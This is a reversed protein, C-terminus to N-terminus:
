RTRISRTSYIQSCCELQNKNEEKVAEARCEIRSVVEHIWFLGAVGQNVTAKEVLGVRKAASVAVFAEGKTEINWMVDDQSLGHTFSEVM